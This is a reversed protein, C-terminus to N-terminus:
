GTYNKWRDELSGKSAESALICLDLSPFLKNLTECPSRCGQFFSEPRQMNHAEWKTQFTHPDPMEPGGHPHRQTMTLMRLM